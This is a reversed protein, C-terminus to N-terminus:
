IYNEFWSKSFHGKRVMVGCASSSKQTEDQLQVCLVRETKKLCPDHCKVCTIKASRPTSAKANGRIKHKNKKIVLVTSKNVGYNHRVTTTRMGRALKHSV